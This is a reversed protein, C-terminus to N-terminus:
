CDKTVKGLKDGETSATWMIYIYLYAISFLNDFMVFLPPYAYVVYGKQKSLSLDFSFLLSGNSM